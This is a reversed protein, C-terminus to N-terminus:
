DLIIVNEVDSASTKKKKPRSGTPKFFTRIDKGFNMENERPKDAQLNLAVTRNSARRTGRREEINAPETSECCNFISGIVPRGDKENYLAEVM